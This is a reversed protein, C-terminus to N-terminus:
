KNSSLNSFASNNGTTTQSLTKSNTSQQSSYRSVGPIITITSKTAARRVTQSTFFSYFSDIRERWSAIAPDMKFLSSCRFDSNKFQRFLFFHENKYRFFFLIEGACFKTSSPEYITVNYSTSRGHRTYAHSLFIYLGCQYRPFFHVSADVHCGFYTLFVVDFDTKFMLIVKDVIYSYGNLPGQNEFLQRTYVTSHSWLASYICHWYAIQSGLATTGNAMKELHHLASEIGFMISLHCTNNKQKLVCRHFCLSGHDLVQEYLHYLAHTSYLQVCDDYFYDIDKLYGIIFHKM